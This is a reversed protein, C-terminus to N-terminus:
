GRIITKVRERTVQFRKATRFLAKLPKVKKLLENYKNKIDRGLELQDIKLDYNNGKKEEEIRRAIMRQNFITSCWEIDGCSMCTDDMLDYHKGFCPDKEPDGFDLIDFPILLSQKSFHSNRATRKRQM